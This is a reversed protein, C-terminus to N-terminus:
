NGTYPRAADWYCLKAIFYRIVERVTSQTQVREQIEM